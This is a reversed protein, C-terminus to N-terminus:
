RGKQRGYFAYFAFGDFRVGSNSKTAVLYTPNLGM